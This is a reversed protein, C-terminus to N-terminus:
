LLISLSLFKFLTFFFGRIWWCSCLWWSVGIVIKSSATWHRIIRYVSLPVRTKIHMWHSNKNIISKVRWIFGDLFICSNNWMISSSHSSIIYYFWRFVFSGSDLLHRILETQWWCYRLLYRTRIRSLLYEWAFAQSWALAWYFMVDLRRCSLHENFLPHCRMRWSLQFFLIHFRIVMSICHFM